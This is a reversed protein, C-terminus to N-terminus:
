LEFEYEDPHIQKKRKTSMKQFRKLREEDIPPMEDEEAKKSYRQQRAEELAKEYKKPFLNKALDERVIGNHQYPISEFWVENLFGLKTLWYEEETIEFIVGDNNVVFM